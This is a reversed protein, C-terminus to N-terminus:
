AVGAELVAVAKGVPLEGGGPNPEGSKRDAGDETVDAGDGTAGAGDGAAGGCCWCGGWARIDKWEAKIWVGARALPLEGVSGGGGPSRGSGSNRRWLVRRREGGVSGDRRGWNREEVRSTVELRVM